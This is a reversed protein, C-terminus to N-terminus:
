RPGIVLLGGAGAAVATNGGSRSAAGGSVTGLVIAIPIILILRFAVTLRNRDGLEREVDFQVPYTPM